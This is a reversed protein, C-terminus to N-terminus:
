AMKSAVPPVSDKFQAHWITFGGERTLFLTLGPLGRITTEVEPGAPAVDWANGTLHKSLLLVDTAPLARLVTVLGAAVDDTTTVEPNRDVWRQCARSANTARYTQAIWRRNLTVKTAMAHAQARLTRRGSTFQVAPHAAKLLYAAEKALPQLDLAEIHPDRRFPRTTDTM